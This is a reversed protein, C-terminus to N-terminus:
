DAHEDDDDGQQAKRDAPLTPFISIDKKRFPEVPVRLEDGALDELMRKRDLASMGPPPEGLARAIPDVHEPVRMAEAAIKKRMDSLRLGGWGMGRYLPDRLIKEREARTAKDKYPM